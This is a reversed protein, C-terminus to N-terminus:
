SKCVCFLELLSVKKFYDKALSMSTSKLKAESAPIIHELASQLLTVASRRETTVSTPDKKMAYVVQMICAYASSVLLLKLMKMMCLFASSHPSSPPPSPYHVVLQLTSYM